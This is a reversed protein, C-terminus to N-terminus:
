KFQWDGGKVGLGANVSLQACKPAVRPVFGRLGNPRVVEWCGRGKGPLPCEHSSCEACGRRLYVLQHPLEHSLPLSHVAAGLTTGWVTSLRPGPLATPSRPTSVVAAAIDSGPGTSRCGPMRRDQGPTLLRPMPPETLGVRRGCVPCEIVSGVKLHAVPLWSGPCDLPARAVPSGYCQPQRGRRRQRTRGIDLELCSTAATTLSTITVAGSGQAGSAFVCRIAYDGPYLSYVHFAAGPAIASTLENAGQTTGARTVYLETMSEASGNTVNVSGTFQADTLSLRVLQGPSVAVDWWYAFYGSEPAAYRVAFNWLGQALGFM